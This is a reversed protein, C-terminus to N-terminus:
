AAGRELLTALAAMALDATDEGDGGPGLLSDAARVARKAGKLLGRALDGRAPAPEASVEKRPVPPAAERPQADAGFPPAAPAPAPSTAWALAALLMFVVGAAAVALTVAEWPSERGAAMKMEPPSRQTEMTQLSAFLRYRIGAFFPSFLSM